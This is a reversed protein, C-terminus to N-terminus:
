TPDAADRRTARAAGPRGAALDDTPTRAAASACAGFYTTTHPLSPRRRAARVLYGALGGLARPWMGSLCGGEETVASARGAREPTCFGGGAPHPFPRRGITARARVRAGGALRECRRPWIGADRRGAAPLKKRAGARALATRGSCLPRTPTYM